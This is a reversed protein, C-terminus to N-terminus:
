CGEQYVVGYVNYSRLISGLSNDVNIVDEADPRLGDLASVTQGGVATSQNQDRIQEIAATQVHVGNRIVCLLLGLLHVLEESGRGVGFCVYALNQSDALLQRLLVRSDLAVPTKKTEAPTALQSNQSASRTVLANTSSEFGASGSM